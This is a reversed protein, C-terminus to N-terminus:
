EKELENNIMSRDLIEGTDPDDDFRSPILSPTKITMDKINYTIAFDQFMEHLEDMDEQNFKSKPFIAGQYAEFKKLHKM